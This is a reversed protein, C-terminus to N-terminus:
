FNMKSLSISLKTKPVHLQCNVVPPIRSEYIDKRKILCGFISHSFEGISELEERYEKEIKEEMENLMRDIFKKGDNNKCSREWQKDSNLYHIENVCSKCTKNEPNWWCSKEHIEVKKFDNIAKQRCKHICTYKIIKKPM